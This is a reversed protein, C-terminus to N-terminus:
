KDPRSCFHADSLLQQYAAHVADLEELLGDLWQQLAQRQEADRMVRILYRQQNIAGSLSLLAEREMTPGSKGVVPTGLQLGRERIQLARKELEFRPLGQDSLDLGPRNDALQQLQDDYRGAVEALSEIQQEFADSELKLLLAADLYKLRGLAAHLMAYGHNLDSHPTEAATAANTAHSLLLLGASVAALLPRPRMTM